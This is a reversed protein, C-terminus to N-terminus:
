SQALIDSLAAPGSFPMGLIEGKGPVPCSVTQGTKEDKTAITNRPKGLSDFNDLGLGVGDLDKHCGSCSSGRSRHAALVDVKCASKPEVKPAKDVDAPKPIEDLGFLRERIEKGRLITMKVEDTAAKNAINLFTGHALIGRRPPVGALPEKDPYAVWGS